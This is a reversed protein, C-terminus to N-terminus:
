LFKFTMEASEVQGQANSLTGAVKVDAATKGGRNIAQVNALYGNGIQVVSQVQLSVQPPASERMLGRWIIWSLTSVVLALGLLAVCWEMRPIDSSGRGKQAANEVRM